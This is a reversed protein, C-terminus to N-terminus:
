FTAPSEYLYCATRVPVTQARGSRGELHFCAPGLCGEGEEERSHTVTGLVYNASLLDRTIGLTVEPTRAPRGELRVIIVM